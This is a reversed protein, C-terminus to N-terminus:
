TCQGPPPMVWQVVAVAAGPRPPEPKPLPQVNVPEKWPLEVMPVNAPGFPSDPVNAPCSAAWWFVETRQPVYEPEALPVHFKTMASDPPREPANSPSALPESLPLALPELTLKCHDPVSANPAAAEPLAVPARSALLLVTDPDHCPVSPDFGTLPVKL